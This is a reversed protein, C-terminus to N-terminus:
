KKGRKLDPVTFDKCECLSKLSYTKEDRLNCDRKELKTEYIFGALKDQFELTFRVNRYKEFDSNNIKLEGKNNSRFQKEDGKLCFAVPKGLSDKVTIACEEAFSLPIIGLMFIFILLAGKIAM